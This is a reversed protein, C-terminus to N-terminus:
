RGISLGCTRSGGTSFRLTVLIKGSVLRSCVTSAFPCFSFLAGAPQCSPSSGKPRPFRSPKFVQLLLFLVSFFFGSMEKECVLAFHRVSCCDFDQVASGKRSQLTAPNPHSVPCPVPSAPCLEAPERARHSRLVKELRGNRM